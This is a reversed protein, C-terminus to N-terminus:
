RTGVKGMEALDRLALEFSARDHYIVSYLLRVGVRYIRAPAVATNKRALEFLEMVGEPSIKVAFTQPLAEFRMRLFYKITAGIQDGLSALSDRSLLASEWRLLSALRLPKGAFSKQRKGTM